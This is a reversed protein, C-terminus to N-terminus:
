FALQVFKLLSLFFFSFFVEHVGKFALQVFKLAEAQQKYTSENKLELELEYGYDRRGTFCKKKERM